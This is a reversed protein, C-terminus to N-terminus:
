IERQLYRIIENEVSVNCYKNILKWSPAANAEIVWYNGSENTLIDVGCIDLEVAKASDIALKAVKDPVPNLVEKTEDKNWKTERVIAGVVKDGIVLARIRKANEIFEQAFYFKGVQRVPLDKESNILWVERAKQGTTSKVVYPYPLKSLDGFVTKPIKIGSEVLKRIELTKGLSSPMLLSKEYLRDIIKVGNKRAYDSVLTAIELSKGIFRFYILDFERLDTNGVFIKESNSKFNIDDFSAKKVSNFADLKSVNGSTLILIKKMM